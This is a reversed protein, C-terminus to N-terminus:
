RGAAYFRYMATYPVRQEVGVTGEGCGTVPAVGGHTQERRIEVVGTLGGQGTPETAKLVLWPVAGTEPADKKSLLVGHVASGDNLRWVPGASHHGVVKGAETGGDSEGGATAGPKGAAAEGTADNWSGDLLEAEPARLVWAAVQGPRQQCNYIQVGRGKLTLVLRVPTGADVGAQGAAIGCGVGLAVVAGWRMRM